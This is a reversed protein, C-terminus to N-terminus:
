TVTLRERLRETNDKAFEALRRAEASWQATMAAVRDLTAKAEAAAAAIQTEAADLERRALQIEEFVDRVMHNVLAKTADREPEGSAPPKFPPAVETGAARDLRELIEGMNRREAANPFPQVHERQMAHNGKM